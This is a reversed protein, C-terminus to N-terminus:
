PARGEFVKAGFAQGGSVFSWGRAELEERAARMEPSDEVILLGDGRGKIWDAVWARLEPSGFNMKQAPKGAYYGFAGSSFDSWIWVRDDKLARAAAGSIRPQRKPERTKWGGQLGSLLLLLLALAFLGELARRTRVFVRPAQAQERAGVWALVWIWNLWTPHMYYSWRISHTM